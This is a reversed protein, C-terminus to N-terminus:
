ADQTERGLLPFGVEERVMDIERQGVNGLLGYAKAKGINDLWAGTDREEAAGYVVKPSVIYGDM